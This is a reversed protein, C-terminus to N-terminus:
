AITLLPQGAEVGEGATVAIASVKGERGAAVITKTKMAELTIVRTDPEVATGVEVDISLVVGALPSVVDGPGATQPAPSATTSPSVPASVPRSQEAPISRMAGRDPYLDSSDDLIEEVVVDYDRGEVSIKFRRQM